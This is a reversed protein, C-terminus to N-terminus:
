PTAETQSLKTLNETLRVLLEQLLRQEEQTMGSTMAREMASIRAHIDQQCHLGKETLTIRHCRRDNPDPLISIFGKGELRQLIGSVTPHTLHFRKEIDRPYVLEGSREALYRLVFSQIGTLDMSSLTRDIHQHLAQQAIRMQQGIPLCDM